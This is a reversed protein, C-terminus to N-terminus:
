TARAAVQTTGLPTAVEATSESGRGVGRQRELNNATVAIAKAMALRVAGLVGFPGGIEELGTVLVENVVHAAQEVLIFPEPLNDLARLRLLDAVRETQM